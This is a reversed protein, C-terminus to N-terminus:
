LLDLQGVRDSVGQGRVRAHQALYAGPRFDQPRLEGTVGFFQRLFGEIEDLELFDQRSSKQALDHITLDFLTLTQDTFRISVCVTFGLAGDMTGMFRQAVDRPRAAPDRVSSIFGPINGM